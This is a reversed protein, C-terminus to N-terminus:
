HVIFEKKKLLYAAIGVTVCLQVIMAVAFTYAAGIVGFTPIFLVNGVVTTVMQIVGTVVFLQTRNFVSIVLSFPVIFINLAYGAALIMYVPMASVYQEGFMWAILYKSPYIYLLALIVGVSVFRVTRRVMKGLSARDPATAFKPMLVATIANYILPFFQIFQWAVTFVAVQSLGLFHSVMVHDIRSALLGLFTSLTVWFSFKAVQNHIVKRDNDELRVKRFDSPLTHMSWLGLLWPVVIYASVYAFLTRVGCYYLVLVIGLRLLGKLSQLAANLYFRQSAQLFTSVFGLLVVGGIGLASYMLYPSVASQGLVLRAVWPATVITGITLVATFSLRWRWVTFLLQKLKHNERQAIYHPAFRLISANLGFDTLEAITMLVLISLSFIGYNYQDLSRALLVNLAFLSAANLLSGAYVFATQQLAKTTVLTRLRNWM